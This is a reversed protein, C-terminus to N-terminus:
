HFYFVHLVMCENRSSNEACACRGQASFRRPSVSGAASATRRYPHLLDNSSTLAMMHAGLFGPWMTRRWSASPGPTDLRARGEDFVTLEELLERVGAAVVVPLEELLAIRDVAVGDLDGALLDAGHEAQDLPCYADQLFSWAGLGSEFGEDGCRPSKADQTM